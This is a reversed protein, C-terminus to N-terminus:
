PLSNVMRTSWIGDHLTSYRAAVEYRCNARRLYLSSHGDEADVREISLRSAEPTIGTVFSVRFTDQGLQYSSLSDVCASPADEFVLSASIWNDALANFGVAIEGDAPLRGESPQESRRRELEDRVATQQEERSLSPRKSRPLLLSQWKGDKLVQERLDFDFRCDSNEIRLRYTRDDLAFVRTVKASNSRHSSANFRVYKHFGRATAIQWSEEPCTVNAAHFSIGTEASLLGGELYIGGSTDEAGALKPWFGTMAIVLM